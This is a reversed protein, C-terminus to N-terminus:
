VVSKRDLAWAIDPVHVGMKGSRSAALARIARTLLITRQAGRAALLQALRRESLKPKPKQGPGLKGPWDPDGGDCLVKGLPRAADHLDSRDEPAGKPTLIGIARVIPVWKEPADSLMPRSAALRWYAPVSGDGTMRRLAALAGPDLPRLAAAISLATAGHDRDDPM